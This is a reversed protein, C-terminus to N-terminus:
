VVRSLDCLFAFAFGTFVWCYGRSFANSAIPVGLKLVSFIAEHEYELLPLSSTKKWKQLLTPLPLPSPLPYLLLACFLSLCLTQSGGFPGLIFHSNNFSQLAQKLKRLNLIAKNLCCNFSVSAPKQSLRKTQLKPTSSLGPPPQGLTTGMTFVHHNPGVHVELPLQLNSIIHSRM